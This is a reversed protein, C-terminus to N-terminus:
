VGSLGLRTRARATRRRGSWVLVLGRAPTPTDARPPEQAARGREDAAMGAMHAAARGDLGSARHLQSQRDQAFEGHFSSHM